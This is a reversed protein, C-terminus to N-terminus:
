SIISNQRRYTDNNKQSLEKADQFGSTQDRLWTGISNIGKQFPSIIYGAGQQLPAFSFKSSAAAAILGICVITMIMIWHKSKITFRNKKKM